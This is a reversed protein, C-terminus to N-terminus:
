MRSSTRFNSDRSNRRCSQLDVEVGSLDVTYTDILYYELDTVAAMKLDEDQENMVRYIDKRKWFKFMRGQCAMAWVAMSDFRAHDVMWIRDVSEVIKAIALRLPKHSELRIMYVDGKINGALINLSNLMYKVSVVACNDIFSAGLETNTVTEYFRPM